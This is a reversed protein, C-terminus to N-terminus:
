SHLIDISELAQWMSKGNQLRDYLNRWQGYPILDVLEHWTYANWFLKLAHIQCNELLNQKKKKSMIATLALLQYKTSNNLRGCYREVCKKAHGEMDYSWSSISLTESWPLHVTAGDSIRSELWSETFNDLIDQGTECQRQSCELCSYKGCRMLTKNRELWNATMWMSESHVFWCEWNSVKLGVTSWFNEWIAKEM